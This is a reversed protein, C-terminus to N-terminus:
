RSKGGRSRAPTSARSAPRKGSPEGAIERRLDNELTKRNLVRQAETEAVRCLSKTKQLTLELIRRTPNPFFDVLGELLCVLAADITEGTLRRGFEDPTIKEKVAQPECIGWLIHVLTVPDVRLRQLLDTSLIEVLDVDALTRVREVTGVTVEVEWVHGTKDTFTKM